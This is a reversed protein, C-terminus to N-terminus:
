LDANQEILRAKEASWGRAARRSAAIEESARGVMALLIALMALVVVAVQPAGGGGGGASVFLGCALAALAVIVSQEILTLRRWVFRLWNRTSRLQTWFPRVQTWMPRGWRQSHVLTWLPQVLTRAPRVWCQLKQGIKQHM